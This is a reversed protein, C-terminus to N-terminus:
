ARKVNGAPLIGCKDPAMDVAIDVVVGDAAPHREFNIPRSYNFFAFPQEILLALSFLVTFEIVTETLQQDAREPVELGTRQYGTRTAENGIFDERDKGNYSCLDGGKASRLYRSTPPNM